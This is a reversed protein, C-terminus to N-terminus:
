KNKLMQKKPGSMERALFITQNTLRLWDLSLNSLNKNMEFTTQGILFNNITLVSYQFQLAFSKDTKSLYIARNTAANETKNRGQIETYLHACLAKEYVLGKM